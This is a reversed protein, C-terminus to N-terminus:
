SGSRLGANKEQMAKFLKQAPPSLVLYPTQMVVSERAQELVKRLASTIRSLRRRRSGPDDSVFTARRVPKLRAAFRETVVAADNAGRDIDTFHPGFDYDARTAFRRFKGSAILAEVDTLARSPVV